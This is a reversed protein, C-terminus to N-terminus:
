RFGVGFDSALWRVTTSGDNAASNSLMRRSNAVDLSCSEDEGGAAAGPVLDDVNLQPPPLDALVGAVFPHGWKCPNLTHRLLRGRQRPAPATM